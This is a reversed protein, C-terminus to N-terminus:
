VAAFSYILESKRRSCGIVSLMVCYDGHTAHTSWEWVVSQWAWPLQQLNFIMVMVSKFATNELGSGTRIRVGSIRLRASTYVVRHWIIFQKRTYYQFLWSTFTKCGVWLVCAMWLLASLWMSYLLTSLVINIGLPFNAVVCSPHSLNLLACFHVIFECYVM